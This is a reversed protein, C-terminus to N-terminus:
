LPLDATSTPTMRVKDSDDSLIESPAGWDESEQSQDGRGSSPQSISSLEKSRGCPSAYSQPSHKKNM